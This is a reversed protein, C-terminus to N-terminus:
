PKIRFTKLVSAATDWSFWRRCDLWYKLLFFFCVELRIPHRFSVSNPKVFSVYNFNTIMSLKISFSCYFRNSGISANLGLLRLANPRMSANLHTNKKGHLSNIPFRGISSHKSTNKKKNKKKKIGNCSRVFLLNVRRGVSIYWKDVNTFVVMLLAIWKFHTNKLARKECMWKSNVHVFLFCIRTLFNDLHKYISWLETVDRNRDLSKYCKDLRTRRRQGFFGEIWTRRRRIEIESPKYKGM